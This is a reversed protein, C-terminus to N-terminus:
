FDVKGMFKDNVVYYMANDEPKVYMKIQEVDTRKHEAKFAARAREVLEDTTAEVGRFQVFIAPKVAVAKKKEEARAAKEEATMPKRGPKAKSKDVVPAPKAAM